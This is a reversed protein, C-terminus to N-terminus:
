SFLTKHGLFITTQVQKKCNKKHAISLDYDTDVAGVEEQERCVQNSLDVLVRGGRKRGRLCPAQTKETEINRWSQKAM